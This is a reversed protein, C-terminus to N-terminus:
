YGNLKETLIEGSMDPYVGIRKLNYLSQPIGKIIESVGNETTVTSTIETKGIVADTLRSHIGNPYSLTSIINGNIQSLLESERNLDEIFMYAFEADSEGDLKSAGDRYEADWGEVRHLDYTHSQISILGSDFMEQAQAISFHPRISNGTDKYTDSGMTCGVSFITAKMGYKQLIPYAYEYNSLYGDDFTIIVSREPLDWGYRVYNNIDDFTLSSYGANYMASIQEEFLEPTITNGNGEEYGIEHYMLIPINDSNNIESVRPSFSERAYSYANEATTLHGFGEPIYISDDNFIKALVMDGVCNRFHADDYFYRADNSVPSYGSFDYIDCVAALKQWYECLDEYVYDELETEYIPSAIVKLDIGRSDCLEKVARVSEVAKDINEGHRNDERYLFFEPNSDLFEYLGSITETDRVTKNYVGTEPIFVDDATPLYDRKEYADLKDISYQPNLLAYKLYFLLDSEDTLKAHLNGKTPDDEYDYKFMEEIGINLILNKVEYNNILYEATKEADYLDGGYMIMNYFSSGPYYKNLTDVSYSSTKSSGIIYSDYKDHNKDIYAIKAIRPNQTMDYAYWDLLKDGFVGFPDVAINFGALVALFFLLSCIFVTIYRSLKM